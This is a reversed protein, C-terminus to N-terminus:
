ALLKEEPVKFTFALLQEPALLSLVIDITFSALGALGADMLPALAGQLPLV